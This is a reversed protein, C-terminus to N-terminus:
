HHPDGERGRQHEAAGGLASAQQDEDREGDGGEADQLGTALGSHTQGRAPRAFGVMADLRDRVGPEGSLQATLRAADDRLGHEGGGHQGGERQEQGGARDSRM